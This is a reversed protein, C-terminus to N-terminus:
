KELHLSLPSPSERKGGVVGFCCKGLLEAFGLLSGRLGCQALVDPLHLPSQRKDPQRHVLSGSSYSQGVFAAAAM